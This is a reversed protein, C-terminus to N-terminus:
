GYEVALMADVLSATSYPAIERKNRGHRDRGLEGARAYVAEELSEGADARSPPAYTGYSALSKADLGRPRVNRAADRLRVDQSTNPDPIGKMQTKITERLAKTTRGDPRTFDEEHEGIDVTRMGTHTLDPVVPFKRAMSRWVAADAHPSHMSSVLKDLYPGRVKRVTVAPSSMTRPDFILPKSYPPPDKPGGPAMKPTSDRQHPQRKNSTRNDGPPPNRTADQPEKTASPGIQAADSSHPAARPSWARGKASTKCELPRPGHLYGDKRM